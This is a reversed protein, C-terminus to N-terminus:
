EETKMAQLRTVRELLDITKQLQENSPLEQLQEWVTEIRDLIDANERLEDDTPLEEWADKGAEISALLDKMERLTAMDPEM